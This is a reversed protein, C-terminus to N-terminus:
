VHHHAQRYEEVQQLLQAMAAQQTPETVKANDQLWLAAAYAAWRPPRSTTAWRQLDAGSLTTARTTFGQARGVEVLNAAATAPTMGSLFRYATLIVRQLAIDTPPM